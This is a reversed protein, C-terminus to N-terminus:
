SYNGELYSNIVIAWKRWCKEGNTCTKEADHSRTRNKKIGRSKEHDEYHITTSLPGALLKNDSANGGLLWPLEGGGRGGGWIKALPIQCYRWSCSALTCYSTVTSVLCSCVNQSMNDGNRMWFPQVDCHFSSLHDHSISRLCWLSPVSGASSTAATHQYSWCSIPSHDVLCRRFHRWAVFEQAISDRWLTIM